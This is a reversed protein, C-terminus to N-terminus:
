KLELDFTVTLVFIFKYNIPKIILAFIKNYNIRQVVWRIKYRFVENNPNIKFKYI